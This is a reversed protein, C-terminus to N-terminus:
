NLHSILKRLLQVQEQLRPLDAAGPAMRAYRELDELARGFQEMQLRLLGRERYGHPNDPNLELDMDIWRVARAYEKRGAHIRRLNNLMRSLIERPSAADFMSDALPVREPGSQISDLLDRCDERTLTRGHFCDVIVESGPLGCKVLFHGPFGVGHVPLGLRRGVECYVTSLTIPIGTRRDIVDNLYSNRPDYYDDDNGRFGLAGFFFDNLRAVASGGKSGAARADRAFEELRERYPQPDLGPYEVRAIRMAGEFVDPEGM